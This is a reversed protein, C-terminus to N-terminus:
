HCILELKNEILQLQCGTLKLCPLFFQLFVVRRGIDSPGVLKHPKFYKFFNSFIDRGTEDELKDEM